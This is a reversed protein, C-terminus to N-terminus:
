KFNEKSKTKGQVSVWKILNLDKLTIDIKKETDKEISVMPKRLSNLCKGMRSLAYKVPSPSTESFLVNNLPYLKFNLSM